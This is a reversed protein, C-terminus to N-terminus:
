AITAPSAPLREYAARADLLCDYCGERVLADARAHDAANSPQSRAACGAAIALIAVTVLSRRAVKM